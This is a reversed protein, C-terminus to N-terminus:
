PTRAVWTERWVGDEFWVALMGAKPFSFPGGGRPGFVLLSALVGLHPEHGVVVIDRKEELLRRAIRRPDDDPELDPVLVPPASIGLGAALLSATQRSRELPSHWIERPQFAPMDRLVAVLEAVQTWGKTSLPRLPDVQDSVAHAHRLLYHM